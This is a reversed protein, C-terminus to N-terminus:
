KGFESLASYLANVVPKEHGEAANLVACGGTARRRGTTFSNSRRQCASDLNQKTMGLSVPIVPVFLPSTSVFWPTSNVTPLGPRVMGGIVGATLLSAACSIVDSSM